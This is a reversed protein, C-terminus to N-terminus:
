GLTRRLAPALPVTLVASGAMLIFATELSWVDASIGYVVPGVASAVLTLSYYLAYGRAQRDTTVLESVAAYLVSSTGNLFFGFM